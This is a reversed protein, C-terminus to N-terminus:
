TVAFFFVGVMSSTGGLAIRAAHTRLQARGRCLFFSGAFFADISLYPVIMWPVFPIQREWAFFFSPVHPRGASVVNCWGYAVFFLPGLVALWGAAEVWTPWPSVRATPLSAGEASPQVSASLSM